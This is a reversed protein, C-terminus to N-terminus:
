QSLAGAKPRGAAAWEASPLLGARRGATHLQLPWGIQPVKEGNGM